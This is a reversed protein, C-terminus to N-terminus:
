SDMEKEPHWGCKRCPKVMVISAKPKGPLADLVVERTKIELESGCEPCEEKEM